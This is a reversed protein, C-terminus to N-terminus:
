KEKKDQIEGIMSTYDPQISMDFGVNPNNNMFWIKVATQYNTQGNNNGYKANAKRLWSDFEELQKSNSFQKYKGETHSFYKNTHLCVCAKFKGDMSDIHMHPITGEHGRVEVICPGIKKVNLSNRSSEVSAEDIVESFKITGVVNKSVDIIM